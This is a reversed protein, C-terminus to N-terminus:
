IKRGFFVKRYNTALPKDSLILPYLVFEKAIEKDFFNENVATVEFGNNKLIDIFDDGYMRLHDCQSFNLEREIPDIISKDEFTIKLNDKQPVTFICYGGYSLIRYVEKIAEIDNEVHELVDCAIVCDFSENEISYMNSMDITPFNTTEYEKAINKFLDVINREPSFHLIKKNKIIKDYHFDDLLQLSAVLLRHRIDLGCNPCINYLHWNDSNFKNTKYNCINCKM